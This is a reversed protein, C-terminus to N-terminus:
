GPEMDMTKIVTMAEPTLLFDILAKSTETDKTGTTIAAVYTVTDQLDGPLPGVVDIGAVVALEQLPQVVIEAEGNAVFVGALGAKDLLLTKKKMKEAIGLREFVKVVHIGSLGGYAPNGHTVPGLNEMLPQMAVACL